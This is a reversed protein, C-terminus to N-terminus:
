TSGMWHSVRSALASPTLAEVTWGVNALKRAYSEDYNPRAQADLACLGICRVGSEHLSEALTLVDRGSGYFFFDSLVVLLTKEPETILSACHQIAPLPVTGGGLQCQMLVELPDDAVAYLDVVRHDFLVLNVSVSPIQSFIGAMVASHIVSDLMSGSQDVALIIRYQGRGKQRHRFTIRDVGLRQEQPDWRQLNRRITRHWDANRWTRAPPRDDPERTGHLAAGCQTELKDALQRVVTLVVQRAVALVEPGMRHKFQLIAKLLAPSPEAQRLVEADTVLETLGYRDLADREMVEVAEAPFLHRVGHLWLPVTLGRHGEGDSASRHARQDQERDYIYSLMQDVDSAEGPARGLGRGEGSGEEGDAEGAVDM